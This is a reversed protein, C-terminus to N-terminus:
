LERARALLPTDRVLSGRMIFRLSEKIYDVLSPVRCPITRLDNVISVASITMGTAVMAQMPVTNDFVWASRAVLPIKYDCMGMFGVNFNQIRNSRVNLHKRVPKM